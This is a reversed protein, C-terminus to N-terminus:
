LHLLVFYRQIMALKFMVLYHTALKEFRTCIRRCSKIWGVCCEIISRRRYADKDFGHVRGNRPVPENERRPIVPEIKHRRLWRRIWAYAYGKDGALRQPRTRPRGRPQPIRV